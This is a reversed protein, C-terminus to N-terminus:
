RFKVLQVRLKEVVQMEDLKGLQLLQDIIGQRAAEITTTRIQIHPIEEVLAFIDDPDLYEIILTFANSNEM